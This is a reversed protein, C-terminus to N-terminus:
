LCLTTQSIHNVSLKATKLASEMSKTSALFGAKHCFLADDIKIISDIEESSKGRISELLDKRAKFTDVSKTVTQILYEANNDGTM